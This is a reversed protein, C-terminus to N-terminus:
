ALYSNQVNVVYKEDTTARRTDDLFQRELPNLDNTEATEFLEDVRELKNRIVEINLDEPIANYFDNRPFLKSAVTTFLSYFLYPKRFETDSLGEPYIKSICSVITDFKQELIDVDYDFHNEFQDYYKKVQKKPKVGELLAILLDAVLNVEAMRMIDKHNLIGQLTWYDNYKHGIKDALTKFPGFHDANIKEQKNLVVSYSNLRSFIDLVEADPLNILLDVSIEYQLIQAQIEEPLQSFLIGGYENNQRKIISFGDKVYSM